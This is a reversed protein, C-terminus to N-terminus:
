KAEGWTPGIGVEAKFPLDWGLEVKAIGGMVETVIKSYEDIYNEVVDAVISDHVLIGIRAKAGDIVDRLAIAACLTLDSATSQPLFNIGERFAGDLNSRTLLHFRRKRGFPSVLVYKSKIERRIANEWDEVGKFTKWVWEIYPRALEPRIGHKEQFTEASQGYFVGFNVNKCTSYQETTYDPGFFRTATEKHLSLDERYIRTLEPDGSFQAICRLEAQSFDAQVIQHGPSAR